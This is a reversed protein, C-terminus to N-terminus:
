RGILTPPTDRMYRKTHLVRYNTTYYMFNASTAGILMTHCCYIILIFPQHHYCLRGEVDVVRVM